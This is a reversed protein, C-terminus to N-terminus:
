FFLTELSLTVDFYILCLDPAVDFYIKLYYELILIGLHQLVNFFQM